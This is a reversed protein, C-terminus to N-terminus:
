PCIVGRHHLLTEFAFPDLSVAEAQGIYTLNAREVGSVVRHTGATTALLTPPVQNLNRNDIETVFSEGILEPIV